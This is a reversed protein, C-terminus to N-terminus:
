PELGQRGVSRVMTRVPPNSETAATPDGPLTQDPEPIKFVPIAQNGTIRIEAVLAEIMAKREAPTGATIIDALHARIRDITAPPPAQPLHNITDSVEQRRATLKAIEGRLQVLRPGCTIDDMTGAEFADHYKAIDAEKKRIKADIASLEAYQDTHGQAHQAHARTIADAILTDARTYFDHLAHLVATDAPEAALRRARCGHAGYRARSFCTYYRYTRTRGKASTGVYKNGCEPCTILGTLHYDSSNMARQTHADSRANAIRRARDFTKQDILAPHADTVYIDRYAIHGIYAPNDLIRAITYGSWPKGTRNPIGRRNLEAAIGRTGLRRRTYLYFIERLPRAEEPHPVLHHTDPHVQYGYPRTGGPWKGKSAKTTMGNIVRDVITAREFEAFVGLLQVLMRGISTSTDFPETASAFTVGATDLEALLDLLDSLRRSFRDVRYVLLTDYQGAAAARLARQLGPRNTTAGSADDTFTAVLTWGIQSKIYSGLATDQADISFPQHEDDTSRRLYIAVRRTGTTTPDTTPQARKRRRPRHSTPTTM